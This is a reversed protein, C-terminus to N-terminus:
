LWSRGSCPKAAPDPDLENLLKLLLALRRLSEPKTLIRNMVKLVVLRTGILDRATGPAQKDGDVVALGTTVVLYRTQVFNWEEGVLVVVSLTCLSAVM